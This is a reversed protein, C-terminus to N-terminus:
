ISCLLAPIMKLSFHDIHLVLFGGVHENEVRIRMRFVYNEESRLLIQIKEQGAEAVGCIFRCSRVMRTFDIPKM